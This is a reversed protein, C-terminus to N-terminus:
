SNATPNFRMAVMAEGFMVEGAIAGGRPWGFVELFVFTRCAAINSVLIPSSFQAATSRRM